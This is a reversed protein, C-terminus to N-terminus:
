RRGGRDARRLEISLFPVGAADRQWGAVLLHDGPQVM